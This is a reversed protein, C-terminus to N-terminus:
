SLLLKKMRNLGFIFNEKSNNIIETVDDLREVKTIRLEANFDTASVSVSNFLLGNDRYDTIIKREIYNLKPLIFDGDPFGLDSPKSIMVAWSAVWKYFAKEAHRKLRYKEGKIIEKDTTFFMARM